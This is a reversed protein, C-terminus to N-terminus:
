IGLRECAMIWSKTFESRVIDDSTFKISTFDRMSKAVNLFDAFGSADGKKTLDNQHLDGCVIIRCNKGVRTMITSIEHFSMSQAEDVIIISNDWSLGRLYSTTCFKVIGSEKMDEYSSQRGLLDGFIDKYPLEYMAAKEEISGPLFGVDRTPVASRVIHICELDNDKRLYENLALYSAIYTKGTGASGHAVINDGNFFDQFMDEQTATIARIRKLDHITWSKRKNPVGSAKGNEV